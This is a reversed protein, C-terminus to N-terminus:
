ERVGLTVEDPKYDSAHSARYRESRKGNYHEDLASLADRMTALAMARGRNQNSQRHIRCGFSELSEESLVCCQMIMGHATCMAKIARHYRTKAAMRRESEPAPGSGDVIDRTPDLVGSNLLGSHYWDSYFRAGAHYQDGSIVPPNRKILRDLLSGDLMRVTEVPIKRGGDDIDTVISEFDGSAQRLRERTPRDFKQPANM